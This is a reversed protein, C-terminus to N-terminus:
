IMKQFNFDISRYEHKVDNVTKSTRIGNANYTYTHGGASILRNASDYACSLSGNSLMNGDLDYSVTNGNLVVLRNNTDYSFCSDPAATINGATDYTFTEESLVNNNLDKATRETVRNLNDYTYCIKTSNALAQHM